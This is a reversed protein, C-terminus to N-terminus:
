SESPLNTPSPRTALRQTTLKSNVYSVLNALSMTGIM